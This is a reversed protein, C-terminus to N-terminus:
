NGGNQFENESIVEVSEVVFGNTKGRYDIYAYGVVGAWLLIVALAATGIITVIRKRIKLRKSLEQVDMADLASATVQEPTGFRGVIAEYDADPKESLFADISGKIQWLVMRKQKGSCSLGRKVERLYQRTAKHRVM